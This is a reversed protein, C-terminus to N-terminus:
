LMVWKFWIFFYLPAPHIKNEIHATVTYGHLGTLCCIYSYTLFCVAMFFSYSVVFDVVGTQEYNTRTACSVKQSMTLGRM